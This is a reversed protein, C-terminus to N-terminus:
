EKLIELFCANSKKQMSKQKKERAFGNSLCHKWVCAHNGGMECNKLHLLVCPKQQVNTKTYLNYKGVNKALDIEQAKSSRGHM